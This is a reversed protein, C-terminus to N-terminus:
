PVPRNKTPQPPPEFRYSVPDHVGVFGLARSIRDATPNALDTFLCPEAGEARISAAVRATLASAYGRGRAAPPTYM